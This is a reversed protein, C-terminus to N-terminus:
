IEQQWGKLSWWLLDEYALGNKHLDWVRKWAQEMYDLSKWGTEQPPYLLIDFRWNMFTFSSFRMWTNRASCRRLWVSRALRMPTDLFVILVMSTPFNMGDVIIAKFIAWYKLTGTSSIKMNFSTSHGTCNYTTSILGISCLMQIDAM